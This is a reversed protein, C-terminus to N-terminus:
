GTNMQKLYAGEMHKLPEAYEGKKLAVLGGLWASREDWLHLKLSGSKHLQGSSRGMFAFM